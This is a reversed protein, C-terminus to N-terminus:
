PGEAPGLMELDDDRLGVLLTEGAEDVRLEAFEAEAYREASGEQFYYANSGIAIRERRRWRLLQEGDELKGGEYLREFEAVRREDVRVVIRGGRRSEGSIAERIEDAIEYDLRMYDGQMLSRPDEPALRLFVQEGDALLREKQYVLGNLVGLVGVVLVIYVLRRRTM